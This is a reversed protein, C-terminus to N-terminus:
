KVLGRWLIFCGANVSMPKETDARFVKTFLKVYRCFLLYMLKADIRDNILLKLVEVIVYCFVVGLKHLKILVEKMPIECLLAVQNLQVVEHLEEDM